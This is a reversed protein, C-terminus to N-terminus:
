QGSAVKVSQDVIFESWIKAAEKSEVQGDIIRCPLTSRSQVGNLFQEFQDKPFAKAKRVARRDLYDYVLYCDITDQLNLKSFFRIKLLGDPGPGGDAVLLKYIKEGTNLNLTEM